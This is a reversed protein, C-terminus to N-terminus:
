GYTLESIDITALGEKRDEHWIGPSLQRIVSQVSRIAGAVADLDAGWHFTALPTTDGRVFAGPNRDRFTRKELRPALMLKGRIIEFSYGRGARNLDDIVRNVAEVYGTTYPHDFYAFVAAQWFPLLRCHKEFTDRIRDPLSVIWHKYYHEAEAPTHCVEYMEYYREKAWYAEALVPHMLNWHRMKEAAGGDLRSARLAYLRKANRIAVRQRGDLGAAVAARIKDLALNARRVVHFRDTVHAVGPLHRRCLRAYPAYMDTVFVEVKHKDPLRELYNEVSSDRDPLMDLITREEINGLVARYAKVLKKEDLGLVRPTVRELKAIRDDIFEHVVSRATGESVGIMRGLSTNTQVLGQKAIFNFLRDTMHRNPRVHPIMEDIGRKGCAKCKARKVKMHIVTPKGGHQTDNIIRRKARSGDSVLVRFMDCCVPYVPDATEAEVIFQDNTETAKTTLIGPLNLLDLSANVVSLRESSRKGFWTPAIKGKM